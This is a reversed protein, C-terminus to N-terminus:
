TTISNNGANKTFEGQFLCQRGLDADLMQNVKENIFSQLATRREHPLALIHHPQHQLLLTFTHTRGSM